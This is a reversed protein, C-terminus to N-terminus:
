IRRCMVSYVFVIRRRYLAAERQTESRSRGSYEAPVAVCAEYKRHYLGSANFGGSEIVHESSYCHYCM